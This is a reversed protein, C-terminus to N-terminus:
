GGIAPFAALGEVYETRENVPRGGHEVWAHAMFPRTQVGIRLEAEIDRRRLLLWLALSQELCEARGPHFAAAKAVCQAASEVADAPSETVAAGVPRAVRRVWVLTRRLGFVRLSADVAALLLAARLVSPHKM